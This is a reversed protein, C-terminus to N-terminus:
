PGMPVPAGLWRPGNAGVKLVLVYHRSAKQANAVATRVDDLTQVENQDVRAVVDGPVFGLDAGETGAMVSTVVVGSINAGIKLRARAADDLPVAELGLDPRQMRAPEKPPETMLKASPDSPAEAIRIALQMDGDGRRIRFTQREGIPSGGVARTLGRVNHIEEDGVALVIDGLRLGGDAAPSGPKVESIIVGTPRPFGAALAMEQTLEQAAAGIFGFRV